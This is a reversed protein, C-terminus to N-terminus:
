SAGLYVEAIRALANGNQNENGTDAFPTQKARAIADKVVDVQEDHLIFSMQQIPTREGDPIEPFEVVEAVFHDVSESMSRLLEAMADSEAEVGSLLDLLLAENTKALAGIPDVSALM